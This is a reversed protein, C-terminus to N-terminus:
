DGAGDVMTEIEAQGLRRFCRTKASSRDLIAVELSNVEGLAVAATRIAEPMDLDPRHSTAFRTQITEAQGGIVTFGRHDTITGDYTIRFIADEGPTSGVEAVVLEVEYPKEAAEAFAFGLRQAYSNALGRASVDARDYSYGCLDAYRIGAIRLSEFENYRGVAAFGIRDYIESVKHLDHSPNDAVFVVGAGVSTVIVSRGRAIGKKAFDARDRMLQEPSIYMPISM